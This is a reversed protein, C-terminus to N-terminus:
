QQDMLFYIVRVMPNHITIELHQIQFQIIQVCVSLDEFQNTDIITIRFLSQSECNTVPDLNYIYFYKSTTIIDGANFSNGSGNPGAYYNGNTISPLVYSNCTIVEDLTDM